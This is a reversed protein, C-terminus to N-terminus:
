NKSDNEIVMKKYNIDNTIRRIRTTSMNKKSDAVTVDFFNRIDTDLKLYDFIKQLTLYENNVEYIKEFDVQDLTNSLLFQETYQYSYTHVYLTKGYSIKFQSDIYESEETFIVGSITNSHVLPIFKYNMIINNLFKLLNSSVNIERSFDDAKQKEMVFYITFNKIYTLYQDGGEFSTAIADNNKNNRDYSIVGEDPVIILKCNAKGKGEITTSMIFNQIGSDLIIRNDTRICSWENLMPLGLNGKKREVTFEHPGLVKKVTQYGNYYLSIKQKLTIEKLDNGIKSIDKLFLLNPAEQIEISGGQEFDILNEFPFDVLIYNENVELIDFPFNYFEDTLNNVIKIIMGQVFLDPKDTYIKLTIGEKELKNIPIWPSHSVIFKRELLDDVLLGHSFDHIQDTVIVFSDDYFKVHSSTIVSYINTIIVDENEKLKHCNQLRILIEDEQLKMDVIKNEESFIGTLLPITEKLYRTFLGFIGSVYSTM